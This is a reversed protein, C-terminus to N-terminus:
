LQIYRNSTLKLVLVACTGRQDKETVEQPSTQLVAARASVNGTNAECQVRSQRRNALSEDM